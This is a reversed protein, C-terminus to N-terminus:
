ANIFGEKLIKKEVDLVNQIKIFLQEILLNMLNKILKKYHEGEM